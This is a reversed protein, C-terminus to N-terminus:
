KVGLTVYWSSSGDTGDQQRQNEAQWGELENLVTSLTTSDGNVSLTVSAKNNAIQFSTIWTNAPLKSSLTEFLPLVPESTSAELMKAAFSGISSLKEVKDNQIQLRSDILKIARHYAEIKDHRDKWHLYILCSGAMVVFMTLLVAARKRTKFRHIMSQEPLNSLCAKDYYFNRSLGYRALVEVSQDDFEMTEAKGLVALGQENLSLQLGPAILPFSIKNCDATLEAAMFPHCYADISIGSEKLNDILNRWTQTRVAFVRVINKNEEKRVIRFAATMLEASVPLYSPLEFQLMNRITKRDVAPMQIDFCTFEPLFGSLIVSEVHYRKLKNFVERLQVSLPTNSDGDYQALVTFTNNSFHLVNGNLRYNDWLLVMCKGTKTGTM